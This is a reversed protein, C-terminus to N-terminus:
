DGRQGKTAFEKTQASQLRAGTMFVGSKQYNM